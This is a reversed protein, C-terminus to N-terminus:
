ETYKEPLAALASIIGRDLDPKTRASKTGDMNISLLDEDAQPLPSRTDILKYQYKSLSFWAHREEDNITMLLVLVDAGSNLEFPQNLHAESHETSDILEAARQKLLANTASALIQATNSQAEQIFRQKHYSSGAQELDHRLQDVTKQSRRLRHRLDRMSGFKNETIIWANRLARKATRLQSRLSGEQSSIKERLARYEDFNEVYVKTGPLAKLRRDPLSLYYCRSEQAQRDVTVKNDYEKCPGSRTTYGYLGTRHSLKRIPIEQEVIDANWADVIDKALTQIRTQTTEIQQEISEVTQQPQKTEELIQQEIAQTRGLAEEAASLEHSLREREQTVQQQWHSNATQRAIILAETPQIITNDDLASLVPAELASPDHIFAQLTGADAMLAQASEIDDESFYRIEASMVSTWRALLAQATIDLQAKDPYNNDGCGPLMLVLMIAATAYTIKLKIM